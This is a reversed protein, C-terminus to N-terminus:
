TSCCGSWSPWAPWWRSPRTSRCCRGSGQDPGTASDGGRRLRRQRRPDRGARRQRLHLDVHRHLQVPHDDHRGRVAPHHPGALDPGPVARRVGVWAVWWAWFFLTWLSMWDGTDEFAFTQLTMDPFLRVYDGINLVIANLLYATRGTVLVFLALLIALLV